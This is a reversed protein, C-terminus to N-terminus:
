IVVQLIPPDLPDTHANQYVDSASIPTCVLFVNSVFWFRTRSGDQEGQTKRRAKEEKREQKKKAKESLKDREDQAKKSGFLIEEKKDPSGEAIAEIVHAKSEMKEATNVGFVKTKLVAAIVHGVCDARVQDLLNKVTCTRNRYELMPVRVAFNNLDRISTKEGEKQRYSVRVTFSPVKFCLYTRHDQSRSRMTAVQAEATHQESTERARNILRKVSGRRRQVPSKKEVKGNPSVDPGPGKSVRGITTAESTEHEPSRESVTPTSDHVVNSRCRPPSGSQSELKQSSSMPISDDGTPVMPDSVREASALVHRQFHAATSVDSSSRRHRRRVTVDPSRGSGGTRSDATNGAVGARQLSWGGSRSRRHTKGPWAAAAEGSVNSSSGGPDESVDELSASSTGMSPPVELEDSTIGSLSHRRRSRKERPPPIPPPAGSLVPAVPNDLNEVSSRHTESTRLTPPSSNSAIHRQGKSGALGPQDDDLSGVRTDEETPFGFAMVADVFSQKLNVNLPVLNVEFHETVPIGGVSVGDRVYIRVMCDDQGKAGHLETYPEIVAEDDTQRSQPDVIVLKRCEFQQEGFGMNHWNWVYFLSDIHTDLIDNGKADIAGFQLEGFAVEYRSNWKRNNTQGDQVPNLLYENLAIVRIRLDHRADFYLKKNRVLEQNLRERHETLAMADGVSRGLTVLLQESTDYARKLDQVARQLDRIFTRLFDIEKEKGGGDRMTLQTRFVM